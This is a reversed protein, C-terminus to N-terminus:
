EKNQIKYRTRFQFPTIKEYKKFVKGFYNSENYELEFAIEGISKNSFILERKAIMIKRLHVYEMVSISFTSKFIRSLYGQSIICKDTIDNLSLNKYINNDIFNLVDELIIYKKISINKLIKDLLNFLWFAIDIESSIQINKIEEKVINQEITLERYIKDKLKFLSKKLEEEDNPLTKKLDKSIQFINTYINRYNGEKLLNVLNEIKIDNSKCTIKYTELIEKIKSLSIPKFLYKNIKFFIDEKKLEFDIYSTLVCVYVDPNVKLIQRVIDLGCMRPFVLDIFIINVFNEHCYKIASEGNDFSNVVQFGDINSIAKKMAKRMLFENDVILVKYM